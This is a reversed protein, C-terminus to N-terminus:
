PTFSFFLGRCIYCNMDTIRIIRLILCLCIVELNTYRAKIEIVKAQPPIRDSQVFDALAGKKETENGWLSGGDPFQWSRGKQKFHISKRRVPRHIMDFERNTFFGCLFRKLIMNFIKYEGDSLNTPRQPAPIIAFHDSIRRHNVITRQNENIIKNETRCQTFIKRENDIAALRRDRTPGYDDTL